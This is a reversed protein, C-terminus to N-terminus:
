PGLDVLATNELARHDAHLFEAREKVDARLAGTQHVDRLEGLAVDAIRGLDHAHAVLDLGLYDPSGGRFCISRLARGRPVPRSRRLLLGPSQLAASPSPTPAAGPSPSNPISNGWARWFLFRLVPASSWSLMKARVSLLVTGFLCYAPLDPPRCPVYRGSKILDVACPEFFSRLRFRHNACRSIVFSAVCWQCWRELVTAEIVTLYAQFIVGLAMGVVLTRGYDALFQVQDELLLVGLIVIYGLAGLLAVPIGFTQAYASEQVAACDISGTNACVTENGTLEAWSMYGAVLVGLISLVVAIIHLWDRSMSATIEVQKSKAKATNVLDEGESETTIKDVNSTFYLAFAAFHVRNDSGEGTLKVM